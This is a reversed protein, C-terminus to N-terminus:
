TPYEHEAGMKTLKVVKCGWVARLYFMGSLNVVVPRNSPPKLLASVKTALTELVADTARKV